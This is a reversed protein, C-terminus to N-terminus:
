CNAAILNKNAADLMMEGAAGMTVASNRLHTATDEIRRSTEENKVTAEVVKQTTTVFDSVANEIKRAAHMTTDANSAMMEIFKKNAFVSLLPILEQMARTNAQLAQTHEQMIRIEKDTM